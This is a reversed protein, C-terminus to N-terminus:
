QWSRITYTGESNWRNHQSIRRLKQDLQLSTKFKKYDYAHYGIPPSRVLCADIGKNNVWAIDIQEVEM